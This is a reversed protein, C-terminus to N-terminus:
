LRDPRCGAIVLAGFIIPLAAVVAFASVFTGTKQVLLGTVLPALIGGLSGLGTTLAQTPGAFEPAADIPIAFFLPQTIFNVGSALSLMIVIATTNTLGITAAIMVGTLVLCSGALYSRARRLDGSWSYIKDSIVGSVLTGITMAVWPITALLALSTFPVHRQKVLYTPFFNLMFYLCYASSM